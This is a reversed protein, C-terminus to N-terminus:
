ADVEKAKFKAGDKEVEAQGAIRMAEDREAQSGVTGDLTVKLKFTRIGIDAARVLTSATLNERVKVNMLKDVALEQETRDGGRDSNNNSKQKNCKGAFSAMFLPLILVFTLTVYKHTRERRRM